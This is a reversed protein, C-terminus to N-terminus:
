MKEQNELHFEAKASDREDEMVQIDKESKGAQNELKQQETQHFEIKSLSSRIKLETKRTLEDLHGKLAQKEENNLAQVMKATEKGKVDKFSAMEQEMSSKIDEIAQEHKQAEEEDRAIQQELIKIRENYSLEIEEKDKKWTEKLSAKENEFSELKAALEEVQQDQQKILNKMELKSEEFANTKEELKTALEEVQQDHQKLLNEKDLKSEDKFSKFDNEQQNLKSTLEEVHQNREKKANEIELKSEDKFTDFAVTKETLKSTLGEVHEDLKLKLAEIELNSEEKLADFDTAKETLKHDMENVLQDRQLKANEIELESEDKFADFAITKENLKSTLEDVHQDLRKKLNEIELNSEDKHSHFATTTQDIKDTLNNVQEDRQRLQLKTDELHSSVEALEEDKGKVVNELQKFGQFIGDNNQPGSRYCM